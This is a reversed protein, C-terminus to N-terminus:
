VGSQRSPTLSCIAISVPSHGSACSSELCPWRGARVPQREARRHADPRALREHEAAWWSFAVPSRPGRPRLDKARADGPIAGRAATHPRPLALEAGDFPSRLPMM